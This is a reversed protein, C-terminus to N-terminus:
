GGRLIEGRERINVGDGGGGSGFGGDFRRLAVTQRIYAGREVHRQDSGSAFGHALSSRLVKNM